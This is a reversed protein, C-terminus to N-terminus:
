QQVMQAARANASAEIAKSRASNLSNLVVFPLSAFMLIGGIVGVCIFAVLWHKFTATSVNSVRTNKLSMYLQYIYVLTIPGFIGSVVLNVLSSILNHAESKAGIGFILDIVFVLGASILVAVISIVVIFLTRGFVSWWRGKVLSYSETFAAFGKKDDIVRALSYMGNYVGIVIAPIVFLIFSGATILIQLIILFVISWFYGFGIKYQGKLTLVASPELMLSKITNIAAPLMAIGLIIEVVFLVFALVALGPLGTSVLTIGIYSILSPLITISVLIKWHTRFFNWSSSFLKIPGTINQLPASSVSASAPAPVPPVPVSEQPNMTTLYALFNTIFLVIRRIYIIECIGFFM